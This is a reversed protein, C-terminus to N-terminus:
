ASAGDGSLPNLNYIYLTPWFWIYVGYIATYKVFRRSFISYICRIYITRALGIFTRVCWEWGITYIFVGGFCWYQSADRLCCWHEVCCRSRLLLGSCAHVCLHVCVCISSKTVDTDHSMRCIFLSNRAADPVYFCIQALMCVCICVFVYAWISSKTADTNYPMRCVFLANRAADRVYFCDQALLWVCACVCVCMCVCACVSVRVCVM